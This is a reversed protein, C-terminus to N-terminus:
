DEPYYERAIPTLKHILATGAQQRGSVIIDISGLGPRVSVAVAGVFSPSLLM